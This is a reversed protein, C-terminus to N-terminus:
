AAAPGGAALAAPVHGKRCGTLVVWEGGHAEALSALSYAPRGKEGGALQAGSIVSCLRGYGAHGRALVLLHHGEPDPAGRKGAGLTLLAGFVTRLGPVRAAAQAVPPGGYMGDHDTVALAVLGLRVAEAALEAPDSAGDGFSYSTHCHLEAWDPGSTVLLGSR